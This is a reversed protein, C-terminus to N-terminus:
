KIIKKEKVAKEWKKGLFTAIYTWLAVILVFFGIQTYYATSQPLFQIIKNYLSGCGKSFKQGFSDIWSKTKFQIEKSTPIYLSERIPSTLSLNIARIFTYAFIVMSPTPHLLFSIMISGTVLPICLLAKREGFFRIVSNTGIIVFFLSILSTTVTSKFLFLSLEGITQSGEYAIALRLNNFIVNIVEWCFIMGVISLVYANKFLLAFGSGFTTTKKNINHNEEQSNNIDTYGQFETHPLKLFLYFLIFPILFLACSSFRFLSVYIEIDSFNNFITFYRSLLFWATLAFIFSGIKGMAAMIIYNNKVDSPNSISNLFSWNLSVLFPSCGELFLYTFWGFLRTKNPIVNTIGIIPDKLFCSIIFAGLSFLLAYCALLTQRSVRESFWTYFLVMPIMVFISILKVDPLYQTGVTIIFVADKLEKLLTYAGIIFFFCFGLSINKITKNSLNLFSSFFM